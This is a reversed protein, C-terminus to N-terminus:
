QRLCSGEQPSDALQHHQPISESYHSGMVGLHAIDVVQCAVSSAVKWLVIHRHVLWIKLEPLVGTQPMQPGKLSSSKRGKQAGVEGSVMRSVPEVALLRWSM